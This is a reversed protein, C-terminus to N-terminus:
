SEESRAKVETYLATLFKKINLRCRTTKEGDQIEKMRTRVDQFDFLRPAYQEFTPNAYDTLGISAIHGLAQLVTRRLRQEMAKIERVMQEYSISPDDGILVAQYLDKLMPLERWRGETRHLYYLIQLLDSSGSEGAIGLTNLSDHAHDEFTKYTVTAPSRGGAHGDLLSLSRRITTLSQELKCHEAVRKVVALVELRNVPKHIFMDVGAQYAEGVMEKNEVQSIMVFRGQYGQSRLDRITEIGDKGPMLLDILVIDAPRVDEIAVELGSAAAGIVEGLGGDELIRELMRRTAPDDEILFFNM